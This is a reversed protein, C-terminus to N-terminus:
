HDSSIHQMQKLSIRASFDSILNLDRRNDTIKAALFLCSAGVD